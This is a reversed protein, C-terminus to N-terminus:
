FEQETFTTNRDAPSRVEGPLNIIVIGAKRDIGAKGLDEVFQEHTLTELYKNVNAIRSSTYEQRGVVETM